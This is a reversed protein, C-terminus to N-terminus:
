RPGLYKWRENFMSRPGSPVVSPQLMWHKVVIDKNSQV